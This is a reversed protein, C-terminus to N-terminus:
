DDYYDERRMVIRRMQKAALVLGFAGVFGYLAYFGFVHEIAFPGHKEVFIDIAFLLGCVTYLGYVLRDVNRRDDLWYRKKKPGRAARKRDSDKM